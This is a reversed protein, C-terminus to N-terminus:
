RPALSRFSVSTSQTTMAQKIGCGKWWSRCRRSGQAGWTPLANPRGPPTRARSRRNPVARPGRAAVLNASRVFDKVADRRRFAALESLGDTLQLMFPTALHGAIWQRSPPLSPWSRARRSDRSGRFTNQCGQSSQPRSGALVPSPGVHLRAAFRAQCSADEQDRSSWSSPPGVM